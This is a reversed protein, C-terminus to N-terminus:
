KSVMAANADSTQVKIIPETIARMEWHWAATLSLSRLVSREFIRGGDAKQLNDRRVEDMLGLDELEDVM